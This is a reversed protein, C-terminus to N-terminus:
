RQRKRRKAKGRRKDKEDNAIQEILQQELAILMTETYTRAEEGLSEILEDPVPTKLHAGVCHLVKLWLEAWVARNERYARAAVGVIHGRLLPAQPDYPLLSRKPM